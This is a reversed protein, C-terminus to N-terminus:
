TKEQRYLLGAVVFIVMASVFMWWTGWSAAVTERYNM